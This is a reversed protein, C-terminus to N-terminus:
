LRENVQVLRQNVINYRYAELDNLRTRKIYSSCQDDIPHLNMVFPLRGCELDHLNAIPKDDISILVDGIKVAGNLVNDVHSVYYEGGHQCFKVGPKKSIIEVGYTNNSIVEHEQAFFVTRRYPGDLRKRSVPHLNKLEQGLFRRDASAM